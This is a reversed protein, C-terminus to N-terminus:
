RRDKFFERVMSRYEPRVQGRRLAGSARTRAAAWADVYDVAEPPRDGGATDTSGTASGNLKDYIPDWVHVPGGAHANRHGNESDAPRTAPGGDADAGGATAMALVNPRVIRVLKVGRRRLDELIAELARADKRKVAREARKLLPADSESIEAARAFEEALAKVAEPSMDGLADLIRDGASRQQPLMMIAGCLLVSLMAAAATVRGRVWFSVAEVRGSVIAKEAQQFVCMAAPTEDGALSLEVATTLREDLSAKNDIYRAAHGSSVGRIIASLAGCAVGTLLIIAGTIRHERGSLWFAFGACASIAGGVIVGFASSEIV